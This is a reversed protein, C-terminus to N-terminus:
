GPLGSALGDTKPAIILTSTASAYLKGAGDELRAETFATRRGISLVQGIARVEGVADTLAAHYAVKVELTLCNAPERLASVAALGCASDLLGAAFGGHVVGMLNYHERGPTATLVVRGQEVEVVNMGLLDAFGQPRAHLMAARLQELGTM